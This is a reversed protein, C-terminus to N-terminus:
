GSTLQCTCSSVAQGSLAVRHNQLQSILVLHQKTGHVKALKLTPLHVLLLTGM